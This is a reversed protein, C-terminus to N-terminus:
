GEHGPYSEVPDGNGLTVGMKDAVMHIVCVVLQSAMAYFGSFLSLGTIDRVSVVRGRSHAFKDMPVPTVSGTQLGNCKMCFTRGVRGDLVEGASRGNELWDIVTFMKYTSGAPFGIGGGHQSDAAYIQASEGAGAGETEDFVTNQALSLINGTKPDIQVTASGVSMGDRNAPVNRAMSQQAEYQLNNDLTTYVDLGGRTLLD